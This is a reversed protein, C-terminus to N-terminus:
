SKNRRYCIFSALTGVLLATGTFGFVYVFGQQGPYTDIWYGTLAGFFFDPLYGVMSVIGVATGVINDDMKFDGFVSFYIARLAYAFM